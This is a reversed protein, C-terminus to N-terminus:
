VVKEKPRNKAGLPRGRGPSEGRKEVFAALDREDVAIAKENIRILSAGANMLARRIGDSTMGARRGAEPMGILSM